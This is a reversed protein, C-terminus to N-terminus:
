KSLFKRGSFRLPVIYKVQSLKNVEDFDVYMKKGNELVVFNKDGVLGIVRTKKTFKEPEIISGERTLISCGKPCVILNSIGKFGTKSSKALSNKRCSNLEDSNIVKVKGTSSKVILKSSNYVGEMQVVQEDGKLKVSNFMDSNDNDVINVKGDNTRFLIRPCDGSAIGVNSWNKEKGIFEQPEVGYTLGNSNTFYIKDMTSTIKVSDLHKKSKDDILEKRGDESIAAIAFDTLKTKVSLTEQSVGIKIKRETSIKKNDDLYKIEALENLYRTVVEDIHEIDYKIKEIMECLSKINDKTKVQDTKKLSFIQQAGIYDAGFYALSEKGKKVLAKLIPLKKVLYDRPEVKDQKISAMIIDINQSAELRVREKFLKEKTNKLDLKLMKTEIQKRWEVWMKMLDVINPSLVQVDVDKEPNDEIKNRELAYFRYSVNQELHHKVFKDFLSYSKVEVEIRNGREKDTYDHASIVLNKEELQSMKLLFTNPSFNPCFGTVVVRICNESKEFKYECCYRLSGFGNKYLDLVEQESSLLIGGHVYDPSPMRKYIGKATSAEGKRVVYKLANAVEILNFQPMSCSIGVAIGSGGNLFYVPLRSPFVVPEKLTGDYNPVYEAVDNCEVVKMGIKSIRAETYRSAAAGNTLSGFNGKGYVVPCYDTALTVLSGYADSHPHYKGMADGTIRACKVTPNGVTAKLECMAWVLRRQAPKFGDRFDPLARDEIVDRGYEIMNKHVVRAMVQKTYASNIKLKPAEKM